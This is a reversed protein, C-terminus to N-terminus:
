FLLISHEPVCQSLRGLQPGKVSPAAAIWGGASLGLADASHWVCLLYHSCLSSCSMKPEHGTDPIGVSAVCPLRQRHGLREKRERNRKKEKKKM